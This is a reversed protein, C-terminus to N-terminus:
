AAVLHRSITIKPLKVEYKQWYANEDPYNIKVPKIIKKMKDIKRNIREEFIERAEKGTSAIIQCSKKKNGFYIIYLTIGKSFKEKLESDNFVQLNTAKIRSNIQCAEFKKEAKEQDPAFTMFHRDNQNKDIFILHYPEYTLEKEM